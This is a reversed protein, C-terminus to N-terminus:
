TPWTEMVSLGCKPLLKRQKRISLQVAPSPFDFRGRFPSTPTHLQHLIESSHPFREQSALSFRLIKDALMARRGHEWLITLYFNAGIM